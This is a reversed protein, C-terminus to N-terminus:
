RALRHFAATGFLTQRRAGSSTGRFGAAELLSPIRGAINDDVPELRVLMRSVLRAYIGSPVGFDLLHFEGGPRLVRHVERFALLKQNADLHHVVFSSLVRDFSAAPYPLRTGSGEVLEVVVGAREVKSRALDLVRPDPDLGTVRAGPHREKLMIALTGTGCGLDLVDYGDRIDALGVLMGKLARERMALRM